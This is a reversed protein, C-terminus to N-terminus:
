RGYIVKGELRNKNLRKNLHLGELVFETISATIEPTDSENMRKVAEELGIIEKVNRMYEGSNM